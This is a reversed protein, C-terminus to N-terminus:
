KKSLGISIIKKVTFIMNLITYNQESYITQIISLYYYPFSRLETILIANYKM